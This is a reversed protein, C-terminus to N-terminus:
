YYLIVMNYLILRQLHGLIGLITNNMELSSTLIHLVCKSSNQTGFIIADGGILRTILCEEASHKKHSPICFKMETVLRFCAILSISNNKSFKM